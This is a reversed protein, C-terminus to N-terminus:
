SRCACYLVANEVFDEIYKCAGVNVSTNSATTDFCISKIGTKINFKQLAEIVCNAEGFGSGDQTKPISVIKEENKADISESLLSLRINLQVASQFHITSQVASESVASEFIKDCIHSFYSKKVRTIHYELINWIM